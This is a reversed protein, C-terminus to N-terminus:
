AGATWTGTLHAPKAALADLKSVVTAIQAALDELRNAIWDLREAYDGGPEGPEVQGATVRQFVVAFCVHRNWPLGAGMFVDSPAGKVRAWYPGIVLNADYEAYLTLEGLKGGFVTREEINDVKPYKEIPWGFEIIAGNLRQGAEDLVDAYFEHLGAAAKEDIFSASVLRYHTQNPEPQASLLVARVGMIMGDESRVADLDPDWYAM